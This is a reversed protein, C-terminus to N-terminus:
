LFSFDKSYRLNQEVYGESYDVKIDIIEGKGNKVPVFVPNVFGGYSAIDLKKFRELVERHIEPDVNVAYKEVLEKGAEFDGESKVRQIKALLEGFLKRLADFDNIVFYTKNNRIKKEIVNDEIGKEYVWKAVLQRNRMHTQEINQGPKIRRLQTMLGNRIYAIYGAKAVDIDPILGLEIMKSDMLYYLAFLDARAEEIVSAYNRLAESSVGPLLKGSGHGLCEHLDTLLNSALHGHKNLLETEAEDWSFEATSGEIQRVQEYAYTVNDITVSKSGYEKRIWDANPLNIGAPSSPYCDGGLHAVTIVRATVGKVEKKKFLPDVPSNDEFWQANDSILKTRESAEVDKYHVVGEWTAKMGLPDGYVEIFGNIFDVVPEDNQVWMVSFKDFVRLDGTNYYKILKEISAKQLDDEAYPVAKELWYVVQKLADSYLGGIKYVEEYIKGNRKVLRSNLGYSVPRPDETDIMSGYFEVVEKETLNKYFNNASSLILDKSPDLSVRKNDVDPDFIVPIILDFMEAATQGQYTFWFDNDITKVADEFWEESFGPKHKYTSAHHHIGNSFWVQKLYTKFARFNDTNRNGEFRELFIELNRRILLNHLYNQDYIIDRGSIAAKSLYYVLKKQELSLSNWDKLHYRMINVDAFREVFHEISETQKEDECQDSRDKCNFLLLTM